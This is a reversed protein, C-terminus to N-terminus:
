GPAHEALGYPCYHNHPSAGYCLYVLTVAQRFSNLDIKLNYCTLVLQPSNDESHPSNDESHPALQRLALKRQPSNDQPSNDKPRTTRIGSRSPKPGFHGLVWKSFGFWAFQTLKFFVGKNNENMRSASFNMIVYQFLANKAIGDICLYTSIVRSKLRLHYTKSVAKFSYKLNQQSTM